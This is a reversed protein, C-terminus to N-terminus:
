RKCNLAKAYQLALDLGQKFEAERGPVAGLGLEGAKVEGLIVPM